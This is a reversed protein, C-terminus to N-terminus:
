SSSDVPVDQDSIEGLGPPLVGLVGDGGGLREGRLPRPRDPLLSHLDHAPHRVDDRVPDVLQGGEHGDLHPLAPELRQPVDLLGGVEDAVVALLQLLVVPEGEPHSREVLTPIVLLFVVPADQLRVAHPAHDAREVEGHGQRAAGGSPGQDRPVGHHELGGVLPEEGAELEVLAYPVATHGRAREM